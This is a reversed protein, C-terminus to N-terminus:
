STVGGYKKAAAPSQIRFGKVLYVTTLKAKGPLSVAGLTELDFTDDIEEATAASILIRSGPEGADATTKAYAELRAAVNVTDGISTYKLREANGVTGALLPGTHIGIRLLYPHENARSVREAGDVLALACEVARQADGAAPFPVGFNSKIGDGFYDDVMGGHDLVTNTAMRMFTDLWRMLLDPPLSESLSTFGRLDLFMVTANLQQPKLVGEELLENRRHWIAAAVAPSVQLSLLRHLAARDRGARQLLFGTVLSASIAWGGAMPVVPAWVQQLMLVYGGTAVVLVGTSGILLLRDASRAGLGALGGGLCAALILSWEVGRPWTTMPSQGMEAIRLLQDTLHAHLAIGAMHPEDIWPWQGLPTSFTDKVSQADVGFIVIRDALVEAPIAGAQLDGLTYRPFAREGRAYDILYQYGANDLSVYGGFDRTLPRVTTEGLRFHEPVRPDPTLDIGDAALYALALKLSFAWGVSGGGDLFALGRRVVAGDDLVVDSFGVRGSATLASPPGVGASTASHWKFIGIVSSQRAFTEELRRTGPAVPLDRYIDLGIVRPGAAALAEVSAAMTEDSLPWEGLRAIDAETVAILVLPSPWAPAPQLALMLDYAILELPELLGQVRAMLLGAGAVASILLAAALLQRRNERVGAMDELKDERRDTTM